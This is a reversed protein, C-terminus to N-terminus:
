IGFGYKKQSALVRRVYGSGNFTRNRLRETLRTPGLNYAALAIELSGFRELMEGLYDTGFEINWLPDYVLHGNFAFTDDAQEPGLIRTPMVQMLGKAGVRSVACPDFSSEVEIIALILSPPVQIQDAKQVILQALNLLEIHSDSVGNAELVVAVEFARDDYFDIETLRPGHSYKNKWTYEASPHYMCKFFLLPLSSLLLLGGLSFIAKILGTSERVRITAGMWPLPGLRDARAGCCHGHWINRSSLPAAFLLHYFSAAMKPLVVVQFAGSKM